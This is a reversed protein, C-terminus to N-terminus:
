IKKKQMTVITGDYYMHCRCCLPMFNERKRLYKSGKKLAWQINWRNAKTYGGNKGCQECNTPSGFNLLLWDHVASYGVKKKYNHSDEDKRSTSKNSCDRSCYKGGGDKLRYLSFWVDVSCRLCKRWEGKIKLGKRCNPVGKIFPM